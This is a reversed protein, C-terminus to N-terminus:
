YPYSSATSFSCLWRAQEFYHSAPAYGRWGTISVVPRLNFCLPAETLRINERDKTSIGQGLNLAVKKPFNNASKVSKRVNKARVGAKEASIQTM